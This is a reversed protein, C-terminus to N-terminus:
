ISAFILLLALDDDNIIQRLTERYSLLALDQSLGHFKMERKMEAKPWTDVMSEVIQNIVEPNIEKKAEKYRRVKRVLKKITKKPLSEYIVVYNYLEDGPLVDGPHGGGASIETEQFFIFFGPGKSFGTLIIREM